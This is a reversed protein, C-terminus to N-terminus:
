PRTEEAQVLVYAKGDWRWHWRLTSLRAWSKMVLRLYPGRSVFDAVIPGLRVSGTPLLVVRKNLLYGAEIRTASVMAIAIPVRVGPAPTATLAYIPTSNAWFWAVQRYAYRGIMRRQAEAAETRYPTRDGETNPLAAGERVLQANLDSWKGDVYGAFRVVRSTPDGWVQAVM